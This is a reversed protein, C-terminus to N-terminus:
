PRFRVVRQGFVGVDHDDRCAKRAFRAHAAVIKKRGVGLDHFLARSLDAFYEGFETRMMTLLGSSAMHWTAIFAEPKGRSRTSPMAPTRSPARKRLKM